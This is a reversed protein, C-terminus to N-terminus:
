QDLERGLRAGTLAVLCTSGLVWFAALVVAWGRAADSLGDLHVLGLVGLLGLAFLACSAVFDKAQKTMAAEEPLTPQHDAAAPPADWEAQLAIPCRDDDTM